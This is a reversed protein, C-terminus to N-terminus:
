EKDKFKDERARGGPMRFPWWNGRGFTIVFAPVLLPLVIFAYFLLAFIIISAVQILIIMGSPLLAAFTGSLIIVATIVVGGMRRISQEIADRISRGTLEERFRDIIFISYDIGLAAFIILSFFPVAWNLEGYGFFGLLWQTITVSAFYTIFISSIMSIPLILSRFIIALVVFLTLIFITVVRNYDDNSIQNLDRNMSTVGSFYADTDERGLRQLEDEVTTEIDNLTSMAEHSYPDVALVVNMILAENSDGFAYQDVADQIEENDIFSQPVHIGTQDVAENTSIGELLTSVEELGNQIEDIGAASDALGNSLETLQESAAAQQETLQTNAAAVEESLTTLGDQVQSLQQAAGEADGTQNMYQTIQSINSNIDNIGTELQSLDGGSTGTNALSDSAETLGTSIEALGDQMDAIGENTQELQNRVNLDEIAEGAPRTLTQVEKVGDLSAVTSAVADLRSLSEQNLLDDGNSIIVEVPFLQGEDFNESVVNTAHVTSYGDDLEEISDFNVEDDYFLAIAILIAFISFIIRTPYKLSLIGLPTWLRSEKFETKKINPWFIYRGLLYMLVPLLTFIALLLFVVGLAVGVASRYIEFNAFYLVGFVIAGSLGSIFVTKGATSFTRIVADYKERHELEEKFRNLLLICYDTGIGFLIVILFSQTQPSIPFGFWQVFWGVFSQGLLYAVGVVAVPVLPTVISRFMLLLVGVVIIVTFLETSQIGEMADQEVTAQILENSTLSTRAETTNMEEISDAVSSIDNLPGVYDMPIMIVGNENNIFNSQVSEEYTFPNIVNDVEDLSRIEEIYSVIDSEHTDVEDDFELVLSMTEKDQGYEELFQRAQESPSDDSLQIDGKETALQTLNPSLIYTAVTFILMLVTIPWKFKLIHKM